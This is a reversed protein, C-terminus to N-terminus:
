VFWCGFRLIWVLIGCAGGLGLVSLNVGVEFYAVGMSAGLRLLLGLWVWLFESVVWVGLLGFALGVGSGDVPM